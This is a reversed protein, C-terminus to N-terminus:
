GMFSTKTGDALTIVGAKGHVLGFHQDPLVRVELKGSKLFGYLRGMREKALMGGQEVLKEPQAACWEQRIAAQAARATVVDHPRLGSNCVVRIPGKVTELAEGATELISGCFYGAIRDYSKAGMLRKKLFSGDLRERRSSFRRVFSEEHDPM